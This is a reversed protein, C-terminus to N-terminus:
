TPILLPSQECSSSETGGGGDWLAPSCQRQLAWVLRGPSHRLARSRLRGYASSLWRGRGQGKNVHGCFPSENPPNSLFLGWPPTRSGAWTPTASLGAWPSEPEWRCTHNRCRRKWLSMRSFGTSISLKQGSRLELGPCRPVAVRSSRKRSSPLVTACLAQPPVAPCAQPCYTQPPSCHM